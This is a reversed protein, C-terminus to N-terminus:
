KVQTFMSPGCSMIESSNLACHVKCTGYALLLLTALVAAAILGKSKPATLAKM